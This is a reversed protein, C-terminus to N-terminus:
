HESCCCFRPLYLIPCVFTELYLIFCYLARFQTFLNIEELFRLVSITRAQCRSIRKNNRLTNQEGNSDAGNHPSLADKWKGNRSIRM